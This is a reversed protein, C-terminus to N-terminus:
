KERFARHFSDLIPALAYFAVTSEGTKIMVEGPMGPVMEIEPLHALAEADLIIRAEYYSQNTHKDLLRDASVYAVKGDIPPVRRQKYPTLRVLAPLGVRVRDIDEPRLQATVVLRDQRPVLDLLAEGPTIVGGQTHIKLDTVIGAEPARIETRALTDTAAQIQEQLEHIKKQTDRLQQAVENQADNRENLIAVESEAITQLARAIQAVTEGRKGEIEALDRELGLLRPKRELGRNLLERVSGIEENIFGMRRRDSAEQAKLGTIEENTEAIRRRILDTKSQQLQRRAEFIRAQGQLVKAVAPDDKLRALADPWILEGVGGDREAVLRAESAQADWFQGQLAVLATRAKTDDLRILSQGAVVAEGDHVLIAGIIGGELHQITKRSSEVEVVGSAMAASQLPAFASWLGFGLVFIGALASGAIVLGRIGPMPSAPSHTDTLAIMTM